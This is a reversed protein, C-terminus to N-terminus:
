KLLILKWNSNNCTKIYMEMLIWWVFAVFKRQMELYVYISGCYYLLATEYLKQLRVCGDCKWPSSTCLDNSLSDCTCILLVWLCTFGQILIVHGQFGEKKMWRPSHFNGKDCAFIHNQCKRVILCKPYDWDRLIDLFHIDVYLSNILLAFLHSWDQLCHGRYRIFQCTQDLTLKFESYQKSESMSELAALAQLFVCLFYKVYLWDILGGVWVDM